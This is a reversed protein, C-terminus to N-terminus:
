GAKLAEIDGSEIAALSNEIRDVPWDWWRLSLLDAVIEDSFRQRLPLAPNGSVITYPAVDRTVVSGAAVIVGDGITVGPMIIAGYGIWVDNGVVTDRFPLNVYDIMTEPKFVRFPYTSFGAMPHNASSTIFTTGHAFQCFRGITLRENSIPFLYPALLQAWGAPTEPAAFHSFYSYEGATIRPHDIVAKLHVTNPITVGQPTRIPHTASADLLPM